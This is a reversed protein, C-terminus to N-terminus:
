PSELLGPRLFIRSTDRRLAFPHTRMITSDTFVTELFYRGREASFVVAEMTDLPASIEIVAEGPPQVGASDPLARLRLGSLGVGPILNVVRLRVPGTGATAASVGRFIDTSDVELSVVSDTVSVAPPVLVAGAQDEVWFTLRGSDAWVTLTEAPWLTASGLFDQTQLAESRDAVRRIRVELGNVLRVPVSGAGAHINGATLSELTVVLTDGPGQPPGLRYCDGQEDYALVDGDGPPVSATNGPLLPDGLINPGRLGTAPDIRHAATMVFDGTSNRLHTKGPGDSCSCAMALVLVAKAAPALKL